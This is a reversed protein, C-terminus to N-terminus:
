PTSAPSVRSNSSTHRTKHLVVDTVGGLIALIVLTLVLVIASRLLAAFWIRAKGSFGSM